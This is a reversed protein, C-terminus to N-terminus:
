QSSFDLHIEIPKKKHVKFWVLNIPVSGDENRIGYTFLYLGEPLTLPSQFHKAEKHFDYSMVQGRDYHWRQILWHQFYKANQSLSDSGVKLHVVGTAFKKPTDKSPFLEIPKWNSKEWIELQDTVPHFRAPEFHTRKIAVFLREIDRETGRKLRLVQIPTLPAALRHISPDVVFEKKLWKILAKTNKLDPKTRLLHELEGRWASSPEYDIRPCIVTELIRKASNSDPQSGTASYKKWETLAELRVSHDQLMAVTFDRLDKESLSELLLMPEELPPLYVQVTKGSKSVRKLENYLPYFGLVFRFINGWNGYSQRLIQQFRQYLEKQKETTQFFTEFFLSDPEVPDKETLKIGQEVAWMTWVRSKRLSDASAMRCQFMSDKEVKQLDTPVPPPSYLYSQKTPPFEQPRLVLTVETESGKVFQLVSNRKDGSSVWCDSLGCTLTAKGEANTTVMAVPMLGGYNVLSFIVNRNKAPTKNPNYLTIQLTRTKGYVPTSNILTSNINSRYIPESGQYDGYASSLVLFTRAANSTFWGQSLVPEPECAGYYHWKGDAWVEVWAHNNDTSAWYPTYCQRAPIGVSRLAAITFIMEEECRGFGSRITTLPDQDRADTQVFTVYELCWHNVELAAQSMTLHRIRPSLEQYFRERWGHVYPEQSIRHPLVFHRYVTDDYQFGWPFESRAQQSLRVNQILQAATISALDSLPLYALLFRYDEKERETLREPNSPDLPAFLGEAFKGSRTKQAQLLSDISASHSLEVACLLFIVISFFNFKLKMDM